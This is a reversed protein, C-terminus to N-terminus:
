PGDHEHLPAPAYLSRMVCFETRRCLARMGERLMVQLRPFYVHRCVECIEVSLDRDLFRACNAGPRRSDVRERSTQGLERNVMILSSHLSRQLVCRCPPLLHHLVQLPLALIESKGDSLELFCFFSECALDVMRVQHYELLCIFQSQDHRSGRGVLFLREPRRPSRVDSPSKHLRFMSASLIIYLPSFSKLRQVQDTTAPCHNLKGSTLYRSRQILCLYLCVDNNSSFISPCIDFVQTFSL